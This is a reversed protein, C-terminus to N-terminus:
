GRWVQFYGPTYNRSWRVVEVVKEEGVTRRRVEYVRNGTGVQELEPLWGGLGVWDELTPGWREPANVHLVRLKNM